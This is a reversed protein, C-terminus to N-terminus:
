RHFRRAGRRWATILSGELELGHAGELILQPARRMGARPDAAARTPVTRRMGARPVLLPWRARPAYHMTRCSHSRPRPGHVALARLPVCRTCREHRVTSGAGHLDEFPAIIRAEAPVASGAGSLYIRPVRIHFKEEPETFGRALYLLFSHM